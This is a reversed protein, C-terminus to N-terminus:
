KIVIENDTFVRIIRDDESMEPTRISAEADYTAAPAGEPIKCKVTNTYTVKSQGEPVADLEIEQTWVLGPKSIFWDIGGVRNHSGLRVQLIYTGNENGLYDFKFKALIVEGPSVGKPKNKMWFYVGIGVAAIGGITAVTPIWDKKTANVM